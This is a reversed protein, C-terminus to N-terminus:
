PDHRGYGGCAMCQSVGSHYPGHTVEEGSGACRKCIIKARERALERKLENLRSDEAGKSIVDYGHAMGYNEHAGEVVSAVENIQEPTAIVAADAFAIEICEKWYDM